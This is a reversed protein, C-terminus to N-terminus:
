GLDIDSIRKIQPTVFACGKVDNDIIVMYESFLNKCELWDNLASVLNEENIDYSGGPDGGHIIAQAVINNIIKIEESISNHM